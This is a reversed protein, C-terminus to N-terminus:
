PPTKGSTSKNFHKHTPDRAYLERNERIIGEFREDNLNGKFDMDEEDDPINDVYM